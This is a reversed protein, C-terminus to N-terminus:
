FYICKDVHQVVTDNFEIRINADLDKAIRMTVTMNDTNM